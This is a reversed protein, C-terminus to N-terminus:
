FQFYIFQNTGFNGLIILAFIASYYLSWRALTNQRSLAERVNMKAQLFNGIFLVLISVIITMLQMESLWITFLSGDFLTQPRFDFIMRNIIALAARAGPARFFVWALNVLAFTVVMSLFPVSKFGLRNVREKYPKIIDGVIQYFGHLGGWIVFRWSAGHWLGSILFTIMVNRYKKIRSCRSGGLPIYLYDRFWTSLSIHWRRWFDQISVAFYPQNFNNVARFGMVQAAGKAIDSYGSFDCYIQIAFLCTALAILSGSYNWFNNYINNVVIAVNDAIVVKQFFGWIMLLLGNKANDYDFSHKEYVQVLLNKSREIPGAILLPFFSVFLAYKVLNKEVPIEGRYVDMSYSLAQFTYFSIGIPLIVDFTPSIAQIGVQSLMSNVNEVAFDFYKFFFLIALSSSFSIAVWMKRNLIRRSKDPYTDSHAILLGSLYTIVTSAALLLAYKPNWSMYFYYSSVLLWVSRIKHPLAFYLLVVIPFFILFHLSTFLM